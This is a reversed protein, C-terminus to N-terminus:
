KSCRQNPPVGADLLAGMVEEDGKGAAWALAGDGEALAKVLRDGQLPRRATCPPANLAPPLRRLSARREGIACSALM